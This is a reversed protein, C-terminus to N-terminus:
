ETIGPEVKITYVQGQEFKAAQKPDSFAIAVVPSDQIQKGDQGMQAFQVTGRKPAQVINQVTFQDKYM